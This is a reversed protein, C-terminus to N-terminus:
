RQTRQNAYHKDWHKKLWDPVKVTKIIDYYDYPKIDLIPTGTWADLGKVSLLNSKITLLEVVSVGIPNPRPPFRTAFIGVEPVDTRGWPTVKLRVKKTEHMSWILIIHSYDSLGALGEAYQEFVRIQSIVQYRSKHARESKERSIGKEVIGIPNARFQTTSDM